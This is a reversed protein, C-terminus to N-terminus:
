KICCGETKWLLKSLLYVISLIVEVESAFGVIGWDGNRHNQVSEFVSSAICSDPQILRQMSPPLTMFWLLEPFRNIGSHFLSLYGVKGNIKKGARKGSFM